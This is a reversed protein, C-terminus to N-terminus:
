DDVETVPLAADLDRAIVAAVIILVVVTVAADKASGADKDNLALLV